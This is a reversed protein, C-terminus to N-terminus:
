RTLEGRFFQIFSCVSSKAVKTEVDIGVVIGVSDVSAFV